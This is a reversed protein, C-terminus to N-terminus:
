AVGRTSCAAQRRASPRTITAPPVEVTCGSTIAASVLVCFVTSIQFGAVPTQDPALGIPPPRRAGARVSSEFLWTMTEPPMWTETSKPMGTAALLTVATWGHFGAVPEHVAPAFM